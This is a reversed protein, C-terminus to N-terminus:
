FIPRSEHEGEELIGKFDSFSRKGTPPKSSQQNGTPPKSSQQNGTPPKSSQQNGTPSKSSKQCSVQYTVLSRAPVTASFKQQQIHLQAQAATNYSANTLYPTAVCNPLIGAKQLSFTVPINSKATNLIVLSLTGDTNKFATTKLKSDTATAEIRIAGPRVFRSYNAFAWLRKSIELTNNLYRILIANSIDGFGIGWWYFFASLNAKALGDNIRQAWAFGSGKGGSDWSPDWQGKLIAWETQWVHKQDTGTLAFNAAAAYGHGSIVSVYKNAISDKSIANAYKQAGRWGVADCCAIQTNLQTARLIPELVKIFNTAQAPNMMMSSYNTKIEPENVFDIYTVPISEHQYDQIYQVLYNAYAKRWDGSPCSAGPVGCLSGGHSEDGNTKM